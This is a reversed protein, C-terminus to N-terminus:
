DLPLTARYDRQLGVDQAEKVLFCNEAVLVDIDTGMFCRFADEPTCVIPEGRVNFSTNVLVPCSTRKKFASLLVHYRPNTEKHVTQIRASYDVHTVAPISSRPVNLKEIGFLAQETPTMERRHQKAVEAVFLMYPSDGDLDFWGAVDERLVSPAFPRFSERHKVKLNLVSQMAPSRADGLISRAGLARPGFEMRGQFWGVAKGEALAEVTAEILQDDGLTSFRAGLGTLRAAVEAPSFSPGLYAGQMADRPGSPRRPQNRFVYYACLAAGLAGGADGAAPQIWVRKFRGDRLVKGNAVCNLAVGGALCLNEAGSEAALARTLRLVVEETVAQISAALDLHRQTLLEDLRRPPGGFLEEFSGNTMQLGTCYDFYSLNLRFSGDDKLDILHSLIRQAYKPEGYPALGMVKYEGSNVKFGTYYTFASYLLGLSHPFHIEKRLELRNGTGFGASTTAWEGVGDMTLVAAEEFPSAFFASAAHSQHHEAFLLRREWDFSPAYAKLRKKLLSKQFLKERLWLPVASSFSALGRPAFALYTELLREFKLFPKDYFVVHDVEALGGGAEGLCYEIAHRPFDADHKKRTFREEQAAAVIRGDDVLAAASDHYFASIGLIRM